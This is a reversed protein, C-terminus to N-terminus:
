AVMRDTSRPARRGLSSASSAIAAARGLVASADHTGGTCLLHRHTLDGLRFVEPGENTAGAAGRPEPLSLQVDNREAYHSTTWPMALRTSRITGSSNHSSNRRTTGSLATIRGCPAPTPPGPVTLAASARILPGIAGGCRM